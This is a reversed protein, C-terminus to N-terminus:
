RCGNPPRRVMKESQARFGLPFDARYDRPDYTGKAMEFRLGNLFQAAQQYNTFRKTTQNFRVIYRTTAPRGCRECFCNHKRENHVMSGGCICRDAYIQGRMCVEQPFKVAGCPM